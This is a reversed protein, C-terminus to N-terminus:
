SICTDETQQHGFLFQRSQNVTSDCVPIAELQQRTAAHRKQKCLFIFRWSDNMTNCAADAHAELYSAPVFGIAHIAAYSSHSYCWQWCRTSKHCQHHSNVLNKINWFLPKPNATIILFQTPQSIPSPLKPLKGKKQVKKYAIKDVFYEVATNSMYRLGHRDVENVAIDRCRWPLPVTLYRCPWTLGTREYQANWFFYRCWQLRFVGVYQQYIWFSEFIGAIHRYKALEVGFNALEVSAASL